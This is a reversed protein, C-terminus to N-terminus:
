VIDMAFSACSGCGECQAGQLSWGSQHSKQAQSARHPEVDRNLHIARNGDHPAGVGLITLEENTLLRYEILHLYLYAVCMSVNLM